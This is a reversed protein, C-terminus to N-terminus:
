LVSLHSFHLSGRSTVETPLVGGSVTGGLRHGSSLPIRNGERGEGVGSEQAGHPPSAVLPYPSVPTAETKM